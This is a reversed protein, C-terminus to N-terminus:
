KKSIKKFTVLVLDGKKLKASELAPSRKSTVIKMKGRVQELILLKNSSKVELTIPRM